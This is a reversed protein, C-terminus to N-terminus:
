KLQAVELLWKLVTLRSSSAHVNQRYSVVRL